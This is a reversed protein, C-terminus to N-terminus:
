RGRCERGYTPRWEYRADPEKEMNARGDTVEVLRCGSREYFKRAGSNKQFVWLQFGNPRERKAHEFLLVGVGRNQWDPDVYLHDMVDTRLSMFGVVAGVREDLWTERRELILGGAHPRDADPIRPLYTMEDRARLFIEAIAGADEPTARRIV